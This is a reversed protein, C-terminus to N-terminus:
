SDGQLMQALYKYYVACLGASVLLWLSAFRTTQIHRQRKVTQTVVSPRWAYLVVLTTICIILYPLLPSSTPSSSNGNQFIESELQSLRSQYSM